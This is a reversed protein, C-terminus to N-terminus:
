FQLGNDTIKIRDVSGRTLKELNAKARQRGKEMAQQDGKQLGPMYNLYVMGTVLALLEATEQKQKDTMKAIAPNASLVEVFQNYVTQERTLTVIDFKKDNYKQLRLLPDQIEAIKPDAYVDFLDNYYMYNNVVFYEFAYALDNSLFGDKKATQHYLDLLDSTAKKVEAKSRADGPDLDSLITPLLYGPAQKFQTPGLVTRPASNRPAANGSRTRAKRKASDMFMQSSMASQFAQNSIWQQNMYYGVPDSYSYGSNFWPNQATVSGVSLGVVFVGLILLNKGM